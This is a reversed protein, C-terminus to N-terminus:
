KNTLYKIEQEMLKSAAEFAIESLHEYNWSMCDGEQSHRDANSILACLIKTATYYRKTMGFSYEKETMLPFASESGKKREM